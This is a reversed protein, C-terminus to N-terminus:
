NVGSAWIKRVLEANDFQGVSTGSVVSSATPRDGTRLTLIKKMSPILDKNIEKM